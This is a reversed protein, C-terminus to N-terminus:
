SDALLPRQHVLTCTKIGTFLIGGSDASKEGCILSALTSKGAGNEGLLAFFNGAPFDCRINKLVTKNGYSKCVNSISLCKESCQVTPKM